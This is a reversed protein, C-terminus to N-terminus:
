LHTIIADAPLRSKPLAANFDDGSRYGLSAIVVSTLGDARLGLEEDLARADFGEMPCADIELAAAAFLLTGFALYLQKEMWPQVDKSDFRHLDAYYRRSKRQGAKAEPTAFRGDRDEQELVAALHSEDLAQRACFVIVHSANMIKPQNYAFSGHTAKAIRAKGEDTHAIVFHWPQSNVSSPAYRLLTELQAFTEAPIKRKPDFAKTTHRTTAIRAIDM